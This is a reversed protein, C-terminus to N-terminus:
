VDKNTAVVRVAGTTVVVVVRGPPTETSGCPAEVMGVVLVRPDLSTRKWLMVDEIEPAVASGVLRAEVVVDEAETRGTVVYAVPCRTVNNRLM